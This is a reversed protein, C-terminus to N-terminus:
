LKLSGNRKTFGQKCNHHVLNQQFLHENILWLANGGYGDSSDFMHCVFSGYLGTLFVRQPLKIKYV